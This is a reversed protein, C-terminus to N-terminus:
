CHEVASTDKGSLKCRKISLFSKSTYLVPSSNIEEKVFPKSMLVRLWRPIITKGLSCGLVYPFNAVDALRKWGIKNVLFKMTKMIKKESFRMFGPSRKLGSWFDYKSM